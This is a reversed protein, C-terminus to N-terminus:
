QAKVKSELSSPSDQNKWRNHIGQLNDYTFEKMFEARFKDIAQPMTLARYGKDDNFFLGMMMTLFLEEKNTLGEYTM